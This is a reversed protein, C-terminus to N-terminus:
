CTRWAFKATRATTFKLARTVSVNGTAEAWLLPTHGDHNQVSPDAGCDPLQALVPGGITRVAQPRPCRFAEPGTKRTRVLARTSWCSQRQWYFGSEAVVHSTLRGQNDWANPNTGRETLANAFALNDLAVACHLPTRGSGSRADVGSGRELLADLFESSHSMVAAEHLPAM